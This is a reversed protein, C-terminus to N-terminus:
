SKTLIERVFQQIKTGDAKGKLEKMVPGMAKGLDKIDSAGTEDIIKKIIGKVEDDPLQKPLFEEIIALEQKEKDALDNRNGQEYLVIADKRKKASSNLIKFEDDPNMDRGAGSKNFEIISARISRLTEMRIKDGSKISYKLEENIKAELNM